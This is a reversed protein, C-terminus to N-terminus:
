TLNLQSWLKENIDTLRRPEANGAGGILFLDGINVPTSILAVLTEGGDVSRFRQVAQKGHTIATPTGTAADFRYLNTTGTREVTTIISKGDKSWILPTPGAARPPANDGGVGSGVDFDFGTTLNKPQANPTLELTWLDPQSYSRVPENVEAVFALRTGDPSLAM